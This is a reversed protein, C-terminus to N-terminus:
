IEAADGLVVSEKATNIIRRSSGNQSTPWDEGVQADYYNRLSTM